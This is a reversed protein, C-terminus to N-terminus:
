WGVILQWLWLMKWCWYLGIFKYFNVWSKDRCGDLCITVVLTTAKGHCISVCNLIEMRFGMVCKFIHTIGNCFYGFVDWCDLHYVLYDAGDSILNLSLLQLHCFLSSFETKYRSARIVWHCHELSEILHGPKLKKWKELKIKCDM